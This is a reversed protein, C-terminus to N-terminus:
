GKSLRLKKLWVYAETVMSAALAILAVDVVILLYNRDSIFLGLQWILAGLSTILMFIAPYLTIKGSKGHAVLWATIVILTLAAVLQNSSGFIPWIRVYNGTLAISGSLVVIMGTSVYRNMGSFLEELVYRSIRTATDLTTLIFANLIVVAIFKGYKGLIFRTIYGYGEGFAEVPGAASMVRGLDEAGRFGAGVAIVVIVALVGELIMGGYGMRQAYRENPIQKATTGSSVLAHFGSVAGCAVTVFLIPWLPEKHTGWNVFAPVTFDARSTAVGLIGVIIGFFLLFSSLYDRPQLLVNVPLVSAVFAYALLIGIWVALANEAAITIPFKQGLLILVVVLTLGVISSQVMGAKLRYMMVGIMAAVPILGLSPLVIKPEVILTKASSHAFVAVVVILSFFVFWAFLKKARKSILESTVSAISSGGYRISVFLAGLDHIGGILISGLLIFLVPPGWGWISVAIIPGIIPGAGAISSFHHGFLVLWHKAPVYDVGDDKVHAPTPRSPDVGLLRSFYGGYSRYGIWFIALSVGLLLLSNM